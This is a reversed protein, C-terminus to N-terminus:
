AFPQIHKFLKEEEPWLFENNNVNLERMRQQTLKITPQFEPPHNPLRPLTKMPDEPICKRVYCEEPLSAPVPKVKKDVRKYATFVFASNPKPMQVELVVEDKNEDNSDVQKDQRNM